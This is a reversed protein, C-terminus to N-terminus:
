DKNTEHIGKQKRAKKAPNIPKLTQLFYSSDKREIVSMSPIPPRQISRGFRTLLHTGFTSVTLSLLNVTIAFAITNSEADVGTM